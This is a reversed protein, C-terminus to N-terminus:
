EKGEGDLVADVGGCFARFIQAQRALYVRGEPTIAYYQRRRGDPATRKPLERICGSQELRYIASYPFTLRLVGGSYQELLQTLEGIYCEKRGLLSLLLLETLAKKMNIELNSQEM